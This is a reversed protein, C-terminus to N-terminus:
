IIIVWEDSESGRAKLGSPIRIIKKVVGEMVPLYPYESYIDVANRLVHAPYPSNSISFWLKRKRPLSYNFYIVSEDSLPSQAGLARIFGRILIM